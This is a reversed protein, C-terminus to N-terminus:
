FYFGFFNKFNFYFYLFLIKMVKEILVTLQLCIEDWFYFLLLKSRSVHIKSGRLVKNSAKCTRVIMFQQYCKLFFIKKVHSYMPICVQEIKWRICMENNKWRSRVEIFKLNNKTFNFILLLLQIIWNLFLLLRRCMSLSYFSYETRSNKTIQNEIYMLTQISGYKESVEDKISAQPFTGVHM